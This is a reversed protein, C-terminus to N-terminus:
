GRASPITIEFETGEGVKSKVTVTGKIKEVTEKVIYLGIGSGKAIESARYFMKFINSIHTQPIGIGNDIIRISASQTDYKIKVEIFPSKIIPNYYKIANSILNSLIIKLRVPDTYFKGSGITSIIRTIRSDEDMFRLDDM